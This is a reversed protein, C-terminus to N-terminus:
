KIIKKGINFTIGTINQKNLEYSVVDPPSDFTGLYLSYQNNRIAKPTQTIKINNSDNNNNLKGCHLGQSTYIQYPFNSM